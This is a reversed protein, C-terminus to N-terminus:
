NANPERRMRPLRADSIRLGAECAIQALRVRSSEGLKRAISQRHNDITKRARNLAAAAQDLTKGEGLLALVELERKSLADLPGLDILGSEIIEIDERLPAHEGRHSIILIQADAQTQGPKPWLTCQLQRGAFIRRLVVPRGSVLVRQALPTWEEICDTPFLEIHRMGVVSAPDGLEFLEAFRANAFRFVGLADVVAVGIAPDSVLASWVLPDSTFEPPPTNEPTIPAQTM